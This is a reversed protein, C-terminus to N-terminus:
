HKVKEKWRQRKKWGKEAALGRLDEMDQLQFGKEEVGNGVKERSYAKSSYRQEGQAHSKGQLGRSCARSSRECKNGLEM